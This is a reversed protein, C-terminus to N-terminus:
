QSTPIKRCSIYPYYYLLSIAYFMVPFPYAEMLAMFMLTVVCFLTTQALRGDRFPHMAKYARLCIM